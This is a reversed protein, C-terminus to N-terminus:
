KKIQPIEDNARVLSAAFPNELVASFAAIISRARALFEPRQTLRHLRLCAQAALANGCPETADQFIRANWKADAVAVCSYGGKEKDWFTTYLRKLGAEAQEAFEPEATVEFAVACAYALSAEDQMLLPAGSPAADPGPLVHLAGAPTVANKLLARLTRLGRELHSKQGLAKGSEIFAAAMLANGDVYVNRDLSPARRHDRAQALLNRIIGLRQVADQVPIKAAAAAKEISCAQFLVNRDPHTIAFDGREKIDYFTSALIFDTNDRLINEFDKITWTFYVEEDLDDRGGAQSGPFYDGSGMLAAWCALTEELAKKYREDGSSQWAHLLLTIMEANPTLLKGFHPIRWASDARASPISYRHFGGGIQDFIGGRLIADLTTLAFARSEKDANRDFHALCLDLMRPNLFRPAARPEAENEATAEPARVSDLKQIQKAVRALLDTPLDDAQTDVSQAKSLADKLKDSQGLVAQRQTDWAAYVQRLVGFLGPRQLVVDEQASLYTSGSFVRADPTLFVVLPWGRSGSLAQVSQQMQLDLEPREDRDVKICYFYQNLMEAVDADCFTGREMVKGWYCWNATIFLLIPKDARQAAALSAADWTKWRVFGPTRVLGTDAHRLRYPQQWPPQEAFVSSCFGAIVLLILHCSTLSFRTTM